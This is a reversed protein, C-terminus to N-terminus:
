RYRHAALFMRVSREAHERLGADSPVADDGLLMAQNLPGSMVLWNFQEAALAPDDVDLVGREALGSFISTLTRLAQRPGGEWLARALGPFRGVEGIVLRRLQLLRPTLVIALQRHAYDVLYAEIDDVGDVSPTAGAVRDSAAGTMSMVLEVFLQEKSGFYTYVTQKSVGSLAALEDMNAGLYGSRLFVQEAADLVARRKRETRATRAPAQASGGMTGTM